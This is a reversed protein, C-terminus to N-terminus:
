AIKVGGALGRGGVLVQAKVVSSGLESAIAFAEDPSRAIKGRPVPIGYRSAIEKAEYEYLRM